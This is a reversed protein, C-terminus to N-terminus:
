PSISRRLRALTARAEEVRGCQTMIDLFAQVATASDPASLLAAEASAAAETHRGQNALALALYGHGEKWDPRLTLAHSFAKGAENWQGKAALVVGLNRWADGSTPNQRISLRLAKEAEDFRNLLYLVAGLSRLVEGDDPRLRLARRYAALGGVLDGNEVLQDGLEAHAKPDEPNEAAKARGLAVYLERKMRVRTEDKLLPYHHVPIPSDVVPIGARELSDNVLEHVKGTFRIGRHNPFLRVKASPFWGRFGLALPDTNRCAHFESLDTRNTYNRTVLRYALQDQKSSLNRLAAADEAAIREDADIVFVWAASCLELSRNRAASFDNSWPFADVVANFRRAIDLTADTSGTDVVCIEDAFRAVCELCGELLEAEDRVILAAALAPAM